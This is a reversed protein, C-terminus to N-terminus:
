DGSLNKNRGTGSLWELTGAFILGLAFLEIGEEAVDKVLRVFREEMIAEWFLKRGFLRSFVLASGAALYVGFVPTSSLEHIQVGIAKRHRLGWWVLVIVLLLVIWKWIGHPLFLELIQDMERIFLISFVLAACVALQAQQRRFRAMLFLLIASAALLIAQLSEVYGFESFRHQWGVRQAEVLAIQAAGAGWLIFLLSRIFITTM